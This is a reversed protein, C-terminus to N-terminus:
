WKEAIELHKLENKLKDIDQTLTAKELYKNLKSKKRKLFDTFDKNLSTNSKGYYLHTELELNSSKDSDCVIIDYYLSNCCIIYDKIIPYNNTYLYERLNITNKHPIFIYKNYRYPANKLIHIIEQAGLGAIIVTDIAYDNCQTLGDSNLVIVKDSVGYECALNKTKILSKESIDIAVATRCKCDLVCKVVLKGHDCGVDAITDTPIIENYAAKLRSDLTIKM